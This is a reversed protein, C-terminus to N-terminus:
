VGGPNEEGVDIDGVGEQETDSSAVVFTRGELIKVQDKLARNETELIEFIKRLEPDKIKAVLQRIM